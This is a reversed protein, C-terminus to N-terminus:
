AWGREPEQTSPGQSEGEGRCHRREGDQFDRIHKHPQIPHVQTHLELTDLHM